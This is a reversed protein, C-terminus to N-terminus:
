SELGKLAKELTSLKEKFVKRREREKDVLEPNAKETFNKNALRKTLSM